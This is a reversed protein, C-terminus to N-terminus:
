TSAMKYRQQRKERLKPRHFCRERKPKQLMVVVCLVHWIYFGLGLEMLRCMLLGEVKIYSPLSVVFEGEDSAAFVLDSVDTGRMQEEFETNRM